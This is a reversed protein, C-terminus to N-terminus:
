RAEPQPRRRVAFPWDIVEAAWLAWWAIVPQFALRPIHYLRTAEWAGAEWAMVAHNINAPYVCATYLALGIGAAKRFRRTLLGLAGAIEAVGTWRIVEEPWPVWGPTISLFPEPSTLHLVGAAAFALALVLRAALRVPSRIPM